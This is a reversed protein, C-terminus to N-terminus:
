ISKCVIYTNKADDVYDAAPSGVSVAPANGTGTEIAGRVQGTTANSDDLQSDVAQAIKAPLNSSCIVLGNIGLAGSGQVGTIGAVANQPPSMDTTAGAILGALRLDQWFYASESGSVDNYNGGVTGNGNGSTATTWRTNANRDDGPIARYREQYAYFAATTGNFDNVVNRIKAQTILEQGKLIGGLLLGIIVLVIAIEILTFGGQQQKSSM